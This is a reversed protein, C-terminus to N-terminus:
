RLATILLDPIEVALDASCESWNMLLVAYEGTRPACFRFTYALVDEAELHVLLGIEPDYGSDVWREYDSFDSILVDVHVDSRFTFELHENSRLEFVYPLEHYPLLTVAECIYRFATRKVAGCDGSSDPPNRKEDQIEQLNFRQM